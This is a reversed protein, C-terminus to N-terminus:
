MSIGHGVSGVVRRVQFSLLGFCAVSTLLSMLRGRCLLSFTLMCSLVMQDSSGRFQLCRVCLFYFFAFDFIYIHWRVKVGRRDLLKLKDADGFPYVGNSVEVAHWFIDKVRELSGADSLVVQSKVLQKLFEKGEETDFWLKSASADKEGMRAKKVPTMGGYSLYNGDLLEELHEGITAFREDDESDRFLHDGPERKEQGKRVHRFGAVVVSAPLKMTEKGFGVSQLQEWVADNVITVVQVSVVAGDSLVIFHTRGERASKFLINTM